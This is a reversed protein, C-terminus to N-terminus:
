PLVEGELESDVIEYIDKIDCDSLSSLIIQEVNKIKSDMINSDEIGSAWIGSDSIESKEATSEKVISKGEVLTKKTIDSMIIVSDDKVVSGSEINSGPFAWCKGKESLSKENEINGGVDGKKVKGDLTNINMKAVIVFSDDLTSEHASYKKNEFSIKDEYDKAM